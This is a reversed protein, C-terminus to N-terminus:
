GDERSNLPAMKGSRNVAFRSAVIGFGAAVGLFAVPSSFLVIPLGWSGEGIAAAGEAVITTAFLVASIGALSVLLTRRVPRVTAIRPLLVLVLAAAIPAALLFWAGLYAVFAGLQYEWDGRALGWRGYAAGELVAVFAALPVYGVLYVGLVALFRRM